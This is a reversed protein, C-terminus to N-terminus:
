TREGERETRKASKGTARTHNGNDLILGQGPDPSVDADSLPAHPM